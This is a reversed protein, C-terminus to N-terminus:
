PMVLGYVRVLDEENFTVIYYSRVADYAVRTGALGMDLEARKQYDPVSFELLYTGSVVALHAGTDVWTMGGWDPWDPVEVDRVHSLTLGDFVRLVGFYRDGRRVAEENSVILHGNVPDALLSNVSLVDSSDLSDVKALDPTSVAFLKGEARSTLYLRDLVPNIAVAMGNEVLYSGPRPPRYRVTDVATGARSVSAILGIRAEITYLLGGQDPDAVLGHLSSFFPDDTTPVTITWLVTLDPISVARIKGSADDTLFLTSSGEDYVFDQPFFGPFGLTDGTTMTVPDILMLKSRSNGIVYHDPTVAVDLPRNGVAIEAILSFSGPDAGTPGTSDDCAVVLLVIALASATKRM